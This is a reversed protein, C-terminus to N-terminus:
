PKSPPLRILVDAFRFGERNRRLAVRLGKGFIQRIRECDVKFKKGIETYTFGEAVLEMVVRLRPSDLWSALYLLEKKTALIADSTRRSALIAMKRETNM